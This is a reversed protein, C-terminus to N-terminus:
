RDSMSFWDIREDNDLEEGVYRRLYNEKNYIQGYISDLNRNGRSRAALLLRDNALLNNSGFLGHKDAMSIASGNGEDYNLNYDKNYKIELEKNKKTNFLDNSNDREKFVATNTNKTTQNEVFYKNNNMEKSNVFKNDYPKMQDYISKNLFKNVQDSNLNNDFKEDFKGDFKEDEKIRKDHYLKNGNTHVELRVKDKEKENDNYYDITQWLFKYILTALTVCSTVIMLVLITTKVSDLLYIMLSILVVLIVILLIFTMPRSLDNLIM